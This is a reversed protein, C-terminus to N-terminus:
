LALIKAIIKYDTIPLRIPTWHKLHLRNRGKKPLLTIIGRKQEVSLEGKVM